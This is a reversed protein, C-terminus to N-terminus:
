GMSDEEAADAELFRAFQESWTNLVRHVDDSAAPWVESLEAMADAAALVVATKDAIIEEDHPSFPADVDEENDIIMERLTASLADAKSEMAKAASVMDYVQMKVLLSATDIRKNRM